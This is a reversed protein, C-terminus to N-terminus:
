TAFMYDGNGSTKVFDCELRGAARMRHLTSYDVNLEAAKEKATVFGKAKLHEKLSPINNARMIDRVISVSYPMGSGSVYGGANLIDAIEERTRSTSERRIIGIVDNSTSQTTYILPPSQCELEATAGTKFRVGLRIDRGDKTITVDEILCRVIRKRDIALVNADSWIDRVNGPISMLESVDPRAPVNEKSVQHIRLDEEAKALEAIKQNWIKELEFAVLRNSPDVSMYRKRALEAEHRSRELRLSFYSDSAADRQELEQQVKLANEIAMPTLRELVLDSIAKDVEVGHVYQCSTGGYRKYMGDCAYYPTRGRKASQYRVTM